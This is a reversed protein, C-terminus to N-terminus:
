QRDAIKRQTDAKKEHAEAKAEHKAAAGEDKGREKQERGEDKLSESGTAKGAFEKMAGKATEAVARTASPDDGPANRKAGSTSGQHVRQKSEHARAEAQRGLAKIEEEVARLREDGAKGLSRGRDKLRENSAVTGAFELALGAAKEGFGRALDRVDNTRLM